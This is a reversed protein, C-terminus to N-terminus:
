GLYFPSILGYQFGHMQKKRERERKNGMKMIHLPKKVLLLCGTSFLNLCIICGDPYNDIDEHNCYKEVVAM